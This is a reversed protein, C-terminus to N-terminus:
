WRRGQAASGRLPQWIKRFTGESALLEPCPCAVAIRGAAQEGQWWPPLEALLRRPAVLLRAARLLAQAPAALTAMGGADTGIVELV